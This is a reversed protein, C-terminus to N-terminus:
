AVFLGLRDDGLQDPVGSEVREVKATDVVALQLVGSARQPDVDESVVLRRREDRPYLGPVRGRGIPRRQPRPHPAPRAM